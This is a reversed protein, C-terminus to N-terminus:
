NKRITGIITLNKKLLKGLNFLAFFNHCTVNHGSKELNKMINMEVKTEQDQERPQKERKRTYLQTNCALATKVIM